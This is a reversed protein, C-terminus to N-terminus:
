ASESLWYDIKDDWQQLIEVTGDDSGGDIVILELDPNDFSSINELLRICEQRDRFLVVIISVLPRETNNGAPCRRGGELRQTKELPM